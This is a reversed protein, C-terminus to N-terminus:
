HSLHSMFHQFDSPLHRVLCNNNNFGASSAPTLCVFNNVFQKRLGVLVQAVSLQFVSSLSAVLSQSSGSIYTSMTIDFTKLKFLCKKKKKRKKLGM